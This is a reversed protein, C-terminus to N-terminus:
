SRHQVLKGMHCRNRVLSRHQFQLNHDKRFLSRGLSRRQVLQIHDMCHLELSHNTSHILSSAM